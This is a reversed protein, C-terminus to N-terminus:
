SYIVINSFTGVLRRPRIALPGGVDSVFFSFFPYAVAARHRRSKSNRAPRLRVGDSVPVRSGTSRRKNFLYKAYPFSFAKVPPPSLVNPLRVRLCTNIGFVRTLSFTRVGVFYFHRFFITFFIHAHAHGRERNEHLSSVSRRELRSWIRVASM